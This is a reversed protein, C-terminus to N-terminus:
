TPTHAHRHTKTDTYTQAYRHTMKTHLSHIEPVQRRSIRIIRTTKGMEQCNHRSSCIQSANRHSVNRFHPIERFSKTPAIKVQFISSQLPWHLGTTTFQLCLTAIEFCGWTYSPIHISISFTSTDGGCFHVSMFLYQTRFQKIMWVHVRNANALLIYWKWVLTVFMRTKIRVVDFKSFFFFSNQFFVSLIDFSSRQRFCVTFSNAVCWGLFTRLM